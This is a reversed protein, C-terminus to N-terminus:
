TVFNCKVFLLLFPTAFVSDVLLNISMNRIDETVSFTCDVAIHSDSICVCLRGVFTSVHKGRLVLQMYVSKSGISRCQWYRLIAAWVSIVVPAETTDSRPSHSDSWELAVVNRRLRASLVPYGDRLRPRTPPMLTEGGVLWVQASCRALANFGESM